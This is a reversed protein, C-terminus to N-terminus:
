AEVIVSSSIQARELSRRSNVSFACFINEHFEELNSVFDEGHGIAGDLHDKLVHDVMKVAHAFGDADLLCRNGPQLLEDGLNSLELVLNMGLM